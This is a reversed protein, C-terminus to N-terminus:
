RGSHRRGPDASGGHLHRHRVSGRNKDCQQQAQLGAQHPASSKQVKGHRVGKEPPKKIGDITSSKKGSALLNKLFICKKRLFNKTIKWPWTLIKWFGAFFPRTIRSFTLRWLIWGVLLGTWYGPRLDGQCVSFGLFLWVWFAALVFCFDGLNRHRFALFFDYILGLVLGLLCSIGLRGAAEAPTIM